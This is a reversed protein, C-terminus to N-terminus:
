VRSDEYILGKRILLKELEVAVLVLSSLGLCVMLDFFPLPMTHFIGNLAPLYIVAMQLLFMMSVAVVM